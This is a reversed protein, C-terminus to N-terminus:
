ILKITQLYANVVESGVIVERPTGERVYPKVLRGVTNKEPRQSESLRGVSSGEEVVIYSGVGTTMRPKELIVMQNEENQFIWRVVTPAQVLVSNTEALNDVDFSQGDVTVQGVDMTKKM